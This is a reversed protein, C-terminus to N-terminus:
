SLKSPLPSLADATIGAATCARFFADPPNILAFAQGAAQASQRASCLLQLGFVDFDTAARLDITVESMQAFHAVMRERCTEVVGIVLADEIPFAPASFVSVPSDSQM